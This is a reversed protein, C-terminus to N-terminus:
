EGNPKIERRYRRRVVAVGILGLTSTGLMILSSPEPVLISTFVGNSGASAVGGVGASVGGLGGQVNITGSNFYISSYQVLIEGGGGGGSATIFPGHSEDVGDSGRGGHVNLFGLLNVTPAHIFIGGGSGGGGVGPAVDQGSASITGSITVGQTAGLEIAGGGGGGALSFVDNFGGASGGQLLTGLDLHASGGAGGGQGNITAGSGGMGGFGGGGAGTVVDGIRIGGEGMGAFSNGGAGPVIIASADITGGITMTSRSLLAVPRTFFGGTAMLSTGSSISVSDFDFVAIGNFVVGTYVNTGALLTPNPGTTTVVYSGPTSLALTGLSQFQLPDLPGAFSPSSVLLGGFIASAIWIRRSVSAM